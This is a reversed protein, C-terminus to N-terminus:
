WCDTQPLRRCPQARIDVSILWFPIIIGPVDPKDDPRKSIRVNPEQSKGYNEKIYSGCIVGGALQASVSFPVSEDMFRFLTTLAAQRL